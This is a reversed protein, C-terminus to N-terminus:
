RAGSRRLADEPPKRDSIDVFFAITAGEGDLRLFSTGVEVAVRKGDPHVVVTEFRDPIPEGRLRAVRRAEMAERDEEAIDLMPPKDLLDEVPKGLITAAAKSVYRRVSHGAGPTEMTVVFGIGARDLAEMVAPVLEPIALPKSPNFTM